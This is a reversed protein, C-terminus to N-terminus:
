PSARKCKRILLAARFATAHRSKLKARVRGQEIAWNRDKAAFDLEDYLRALASRQEQWAYNHRIDDPLCLLAKFLGNRLKRREKIFKQQRRRAGEITTGTWAKGTRTKMWTKEVHTAIINRVDFPLDALSPKNIRKKGM